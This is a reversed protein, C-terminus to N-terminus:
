AAVFVYEQLGNRLLYSHLVAFDQMMDTVTAPTYRPSLRTDISRPEWQLHLADLVTFKSPMDPIHPLAFMLLFVLAGQHCFRRVHAMMAAATDFDLYNLLDWALIVDFRTTSEYALFLDSIAGSQAGEETSSLPHVRLTYYLDEIYLKCSFHAFQAVNTEVAPGLDLLTHKGPRLLRGCM